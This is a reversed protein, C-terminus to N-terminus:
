LGIGCKLGADVLCKGGGGKAGRVHYYWFYALYSRM